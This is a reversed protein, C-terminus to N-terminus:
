QNSYCEIDGILKLIELGHSYSPFNEKKAGLVEDIFSQMLELYMVQVNNNITLSDQMVEDIFLKASANLFDWEIHGSSGKIKMQRLPIKKSWDLFVQINAGSDSRLLIEAVDDVETEILPSSKLNAGLVSIPGFLHKMLDLEHSCTGVIGGGLSVKSAYSERYDEYPHWNPLYTHWKSVVEEVHGIAGAELWSKVQGVCPSYRMMYGTGAVIQKQNIRESSIKALHFDTSIPKEVMFPLNKDICIDVFKQHLSTPNTILVCQMDQNFFDIECQFLEINRAMLSSNDHRGLGSSHVVIAHGLDLLINAYRAGISGLGVIGIKLTVGM